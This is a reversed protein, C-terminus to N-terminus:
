LHYTKYAMCVNAGVRGLFALSPISVVHDSPMFFQEWSDITLSLRGSKPDKEVNTVLSFNRQEIGQLATSFVDFSSSRGCISQAFAPM